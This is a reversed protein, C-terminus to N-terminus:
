TNTQRAYEIMYKLHAVMTGAAAKAYGHRDMILQILQVNTYGLNVGEILVAVNEAVTAKAGSSRSYVKDLVETAQKGDINHEFLLWGKTQKRTKGAAKMSVIADHMSYTTNFLTNNYYKILLDVLSTKNMSTLQKFLETAEAVNDTHVKDPHIAQKAMQLLQKVTMNNLEDTNYTNM